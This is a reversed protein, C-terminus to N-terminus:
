DEAQLPGAITSRLRDAFPFIDDPSAPPAMTGAAVGQAVAGISLIAIRLAAFAEFWQLHKPRHGSAAAYLDVMRDRVFLEPLGPHGASGAIDQFFAHTFIMFGLDVERPGVCVMEWDLVATPALDVFLINGPRADGWCLVCSDTPPAYRQLWELTSEILPYRQEGRIWDYHRRQIELLRGLVTPALDRCELFGLDHNQPNVTHIQVLVQACARELERHEEAAADAVWGAFVYPPNTPAAVGPSRRMVIFPRGLYAASEEHWPVEPVPLITHERLLQMCRRQVGLTEEPFLAAEPAPPLRLVYDGAADGGALDFLITVNAQGEDPVVFECLRSGPDVHDALWRRFGDQFTAADFASKGRTLNAFRDTGM